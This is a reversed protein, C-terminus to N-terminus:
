SRAVATALAVGILAERTVLASLEDVGL